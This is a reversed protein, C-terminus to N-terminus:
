EAEVKVAKEAEKEVGKAGGGAWSDIKVTPFELISKGRLSDCIKDTSDLDIFLDMRRATSSSYDKLRLISENDLEIGLKKFEAQWTSDASINHYVRQNQVEITWQINGNKNCRSRNRKHREFTNPLLLLETNFKKLASKLVRLKQHHNKTKFNQDFRANNRLVSHAIQITNDIERQAEELFHIDRRFDTEKFDKKGIFATVNRKGSCAFMDKHKNCCAISCTRRSCAPCTYKAPKDCMCCKKPKPDTTSSKSSKPSDTDNIETAELKIKKANPGDDSKREESESDSSYDLGPMRRM